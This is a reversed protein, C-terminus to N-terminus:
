IGKLSVAKAFLTLACGLFRRVGVHETEQAAIEGVIQGDVEARRVRQDVHAALADHQIFRRDDRDAQFAPRVNVRKVSSNRQGMAARTVASASQARAVALGLPM